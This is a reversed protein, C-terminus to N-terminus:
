YVLDNYINDLFIKCDTYSTSDAKYYNLLLCTKGEAIAQRRAKSVGLAELDYDTFNDDTVIENNYYLNDYIYELDDVTLEKITKGTLYHKALYYTINLYFRSDRGGEELERMMERLTKM